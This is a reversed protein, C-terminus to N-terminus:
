KNSTSGLTHHGTHRQGQVGPPDSLVRPSRRAANSLPSCACRSKSPSPRTYRLVCPCTNSCVLFRAFGCRQLSRTSSTM